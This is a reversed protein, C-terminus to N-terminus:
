RQNSLHKIIQDFIAPALTQALTQSSLRVTPGKLCITGLQITTNQQPLSHSFAHENYLKSIETGMQETLEAQLSTPMFPSFSSDQTM